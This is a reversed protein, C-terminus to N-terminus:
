ESLTIEIKAARNQEQRDTLAQKVQKIIEDFTQMSDEESNWQWNRANQDM